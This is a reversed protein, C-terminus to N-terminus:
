WSWRAGGGRGLRVVHVATLARFQGVVTGVAQGPRAHRGGRDAYDNFNSFFSPLNAAVALRPWCLEGGSGSLLAPRHRRRASIVVANPAAFLLRGSSSSSSLPPILFRRRNVYLRSILPQHCTFRFFNPSAGRTAAPNKKFFNSIFNSFLFVLTIADFYEKAFLM